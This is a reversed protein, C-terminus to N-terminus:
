HWLGEGNLEGDTEEFCANSPLEWARIITANLIGDHNSSEAAWPFQHYAIKSTFMNKNCQYNPSITSGVIVEKSNIFNFSPKLIRDYEIQM